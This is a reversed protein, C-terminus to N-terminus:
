DLKVNIPRYTYYTAQPVGFVVHDKNFDFSMMFGLAGREASDHVQLQFTDNSNDQNVKKFLPIVSVTQVFTLVYENQELDEIVDYWGNRGKLYFINDDDDSLPQFVVTEADLIDETMIIRGNQNKWYGLIIGDVNTEVHNGLSYCTEVSCSQNSNECVYETAIYESGPSDIDACKPQICCSACTGDKYCAPNKIWNKPCDLKDCEQQTFDNKTKDIHVKWFILGIIAGVALVVVAIALGKALHGKANLIKSGTFGFTFFFAVVIGFILLLPLATLLGDSVKVQDAKMSQLLDTVSTLGLMSQLNNMVISQSLMTISQNQDWNCDHGDMISRDGLQINIAQEVNTKAILDTLINNQEEESILTNIATIAEQIQKQGDGSGLWGKKSDQMSEFAQTITHTINANIERTIATTVNSINVLNIEQVQSINIDGKCGLKSDDGILVNVKQVINTDVRSSTAITNLICSTVQVAELYKQALVMIQECGRSYSNAGGGFGYPTVAAAVTDNTVCADAQMAYLMKPTMEAIQEPTIKVSEQRECENKKSKLENRANFEQEVTQNSIYPSIVSNVLNEYKETQDVQQNVRQVRQEATENMDPLKYTEFDNKYWKKVFEPHIFIYKFLWDLRNNLELATQIPGEGYKEVYISNLEAEPTSYTISSSM